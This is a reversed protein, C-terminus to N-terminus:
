CSLSRGAALVPFAEGGPVLSDGSSPSANRTRTCMHSMASRIPSPRYVLQEKPIRRGYMQTINVLVHVIWAWLWPRGSACVREM